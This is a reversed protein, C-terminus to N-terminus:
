NIVLIIQLDMVNTKTPGTKILGGAKDFFTYSDNKLLYAGPSLGSIEARSVTSGDVFAGAADTPGDSGDTGASLMAIGTCGAIEIGAALALEMNRGGTGNGNLTVTTEGGSLLCAPTSVPQNSKQVEMAISSLVKAVQCAEGSLKSTLIVPNFGKSLATKKSAALADCISGVIQNHVNEFIPDDPKVTEPNEGQVGGTLYSLINPPIKELLTYSSLIDIADRFTSRDPATIGSAITDLDDGIVDSIIISVMRANNTLRCLQGGKIKSLHKRVGNIEHITAGCSLLLRSIEQKDSLTIGEAPAPCLSSGGGSILCIILDEPKATGALKMLEKAARVGNEDPVPHDAEMIRCKELPVGHGYKTIILGDSIRDGILTEMHKAMDASAKGMGLLIIRGTRNLDYSQEGIVLQNSSVQIYRNMCNEPTVANIGAKYIKLAIDKLRADPEKEPNQM